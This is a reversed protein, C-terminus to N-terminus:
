QSGVGKVLFFFFFDSFSLNFSSDELSRSSVPDARSEGIISSPFASPVDLSGLSADPELELFLVSASFRNSSTCFRLTLTTPKITPM